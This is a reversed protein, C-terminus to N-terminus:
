NEPHAPSTEIANKEDACPADNQKVAQFITQLGFLNSLLKREALRYGM